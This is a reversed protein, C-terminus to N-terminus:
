ESPVIMGGVLQDLVVNAARQTTLPEGLGRSQWELSLGDLPRSLRWGDLIHPQWGQEPYPRLRVRTQADQNSVTMPVIIM